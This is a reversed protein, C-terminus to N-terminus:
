SQATINDFGVLRRRRSAGGAQVVTRHGSAIMDTLGYGKRPNPCEDRYRGGHSTADHATRGGQCRYLAPRAFWALANRGGVVRRVGLDTDRPGSADSAQRSSLGEHQRRGHRLRESANWTVVDKSGGRIRSLSRSSTLIVGDVAPLVRQLADHEAQDSGRTELIMLTYGAHACTREAGRIMGHFVPNAIDAVVMALTSTPRQSAPSQIRATRYSLDQAVQRVHEATRFSVRGPHSLARSVTSTAVGAVRAVDYITYAVRHM